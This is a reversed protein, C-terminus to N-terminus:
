RSFSALREWWRRLGPEELLVEIHSLAGGLFMLDVPGAGITRYAIQAGGAGQAWRVRGEDM